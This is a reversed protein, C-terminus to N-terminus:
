ANRFREKMELPLIRRFQRGEITRDLIAVELHEEKIRGNTSTNELSHRCLDLAENVSLAERYHERLFTNVVEAHGGIAAYGTYDSISGDFLIHYMSNKEAREGVEVVLIEIELPKIEKTFINGILQSYANALSKGTVDERSYHYGKIDAYRIGSKRLTEFESYKGVGAFALSDYIESIKSLSSSPNEAALLIGDEFEVAVLSKGKAIGKRAYEAKDQMMQEPSVYYPMPM